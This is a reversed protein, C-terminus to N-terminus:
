RAEDNFLGAMDPPCFGRARLSAAIIPIEVAEYLIGCSVGYCSPLTALHIGTAVLVFGAFWLWERAIRQRVEPQVDM